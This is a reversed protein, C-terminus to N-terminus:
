TETPPWQWPCSPCRYGQLFPVPTKRPGIITHAARTSELSHGPGLPVMVMPSWNKGAPGIPRYMELPDRAPKALQPEDPYFSEVRAGCKPCTGKTRAHKRELLEREFDPHIPDDDHDSM